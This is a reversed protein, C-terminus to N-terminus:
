YFPLEEDEVPQTTRFARGGNEDGWDIQAAKKAKDIAESQEASNSPQQSDASAAPRSYSYSVDEDSDDSDDNDEDGPDYEDDSTDYEDDRTGYGGATTESRYRASAQAAQTQAKSEGFEADEIIIEPATRKQGSYQDTFQNLQMRGRVEMKMPHKVHNMFFEGVSGFASCQFFDTDQGGPKTFRRKVAITVKVVGATTREPDRVVRGTICITNM